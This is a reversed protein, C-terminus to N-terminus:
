SVAERRAVKHKHTEHDPPSHALGLLWLLFLLSSLCLSLSLRRSVASLLFLLDLLGLLGILKTECEFVGRAVCAETTLASPQIVPECLESYRM